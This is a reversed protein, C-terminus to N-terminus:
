TQLSPSAANADGEERLEDRTAGNWRGHSTMETASWPSSKNTGKMGRDGTTSVGAV